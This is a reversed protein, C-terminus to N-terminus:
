DDRIMGIIKQTDVVRMQNLQDKEFFHALDKQVESGVLISAALLSKVNEPLSLSL